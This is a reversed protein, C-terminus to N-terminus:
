RYVERRHGVNVVLILLRTDEISYVIRYRGQRARWLNRGSIKECGRPRSDEGLARIRRMVFRRDRRSGIRVIEKRASPKVLIEYCAV